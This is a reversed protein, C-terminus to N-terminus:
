VLNNKELFGKVRQFIKEHGSSNPHLGDELDNDEILNFMDLYPIDNKKSLSEILFSYQKIRKNTYYETPHWPIPMTKSEVVKTLGIFCVKKSYKKSIELLFKLNEVFKDPLVNPSDETKVYRSDNIGIAFLVTDPERAECEVEFRKILNNTTDGSIGLNYIRTDGGENDLFQRLRNVWGGKEIDDVGYTISDGWVCIRGMIVLCDKPKYFQRFFSSFLL